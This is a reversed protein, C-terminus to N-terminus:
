NLISICHFVASVGRLIFTHAAKSMARNFRNYEEEALIGHHVILAIKKSYSGPRSGAFIQPLVTNGTTTTTTTTSTTTTTMTM